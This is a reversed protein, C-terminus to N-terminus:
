PSNHGNKTKEFFNCFVFNQFHRNQAKSARFVGPVHNKQFHTKPPKSAELSGPVHNKQVNKSVKKEVKVLLFSVFQLFHLSVKKVIKWYEIYLSYGDLVPYYCM